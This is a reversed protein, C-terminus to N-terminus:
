GKTSVNPHCSFWGDDTCVHDMRKDHPETPIEETIQFSYCVGVTVIDTHELFTDYYGRGYGLREGKCSFALGPVFCVANEAGCFLKDEAPEPEMIGYAGCRLEQLSEIKYFRLINTGPVCYPVYLAKGHHLAAKLLPYTDAETGFSVYCLVTDANQYLSSDTINRLIRGDRADRDTCASRRHKMEVRLNRKETM